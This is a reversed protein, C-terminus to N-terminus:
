NPILLHDVARKAKSLVLLYVNGAGWQTTSWKPFHAIETWSYTINNQLLGTNMDNLNLHKNLKMIYLVIWRGNCMAFSENVIEAAM